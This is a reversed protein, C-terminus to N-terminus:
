SNLNNELVTLKIFYTDKNDDIELTYNDKYVLQLRRIINGMGIGSSIEKTGNSKKNWVSFSFLEDDAFVKIKVSNEKEKLEGHKFANEVFSILVLHLIFTQGYYEKGETQFDIQLENDFRYQQITIYNQIHNLEKEISVFGKYQAETITYRMINSLTMISNSLEDSLFIAKSYMFNLTNYLFHPNIQANLFAMEAIVKEKELSLFEKQLMRKQKELRVNYIAFWYGYSFFLYIMVLWSSDVWFNNAFMVHGSTIDLFVFFKFMLLYRFGTYCIGLLITALFIKFYKKQPAYRDLIGHANSYFLAAFLPYTFFTRYIRLVAPSDIILLIDNILLYLVWAGFHIMITRRNKKISLIINQIYIKLSLM